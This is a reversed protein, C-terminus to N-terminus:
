CLCILTSFAQPQQLSSRQAKAAILVKYDPYNLKLLGDLLKGIVREENKAPVIISVKPTATQLTTLPIRKTGM